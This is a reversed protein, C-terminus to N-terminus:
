MLEGGNSAIYEQLFKQAKEDPNTINDKYIVEGYEDLARPTSTEYDSYMLKVGHETCKIYAFFDVGMVQGRYTMILDNGQKLKVRETFKM